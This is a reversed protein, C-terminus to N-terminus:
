KTRLFRLMWFYFSRSVYKEFEGMSGSVDRMALIVANTERRPQPVAVRFRLDDETVGAFRPRGGLANRKINQRVTRRKDLNAMQGRRAIEHYRPASADITEAQKKELNPLGM